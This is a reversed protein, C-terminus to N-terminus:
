AGRAKAQAPKNMARRSTPAYICSRVDYHQALCNGCMHMQHIKCFVVPAETGCLDCGGRSKRAVPSPLVPNAGGSAQLFRAKIYIGGAISVAGLSFLCAGVPLLSQDSGKELASPLVCLGAFLVIVGLVITWNGIRSSM